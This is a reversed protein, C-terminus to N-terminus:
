RRGSPPKWRDFSVTIMEFKGGIDWPMREDRQFVM